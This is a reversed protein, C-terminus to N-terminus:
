AEEAKLFYKFDNWSEFGKGGSTEIVYRVWPHTLSDESVVYVPRKLQAACFWIECITGISYTGRKIFAVVGDSAEINGLDKLVIANHDLNPDSRPIEGRDIRYIDDRGTDYFPNLLEVGTEQEIALEIERIEHRLDLPHALYLRV